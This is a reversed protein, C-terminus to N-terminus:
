KTTDLLETIEILLRNLDSKIIDWIIQDDLGFYEHVLFNRFDKLNKWEVEPHLDRYDKPFKSSAEGIITFNYNVAHKVQLNLSFTEFDIEKTFLLINNIADFIDM